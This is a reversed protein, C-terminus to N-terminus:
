LVRYKIEGITSHEELHPRYIPENKTLYKLYRGNCFEQVEISNTRCLRAVSIVDNFANALDVALIEPYDEIEIHSGGKRSGDTGSLEECLNGYLEETIFPMYPNLIKLISSFVYLLVDPDGEFGGKAVEIFIDCFDYLFFSHISQTSALFNYTAFHAHQEEIVANLRELIWKQHELLKMESVAARMDASSKGNATADPGSTKSLCCGLVFKFANYIKNCLRSNGEVRLVDLNIDKMGNTYNLLTFRLADAGCKRIGNPYDRRIADEARRLERPDLNGKSLNGIMEELSIGDIVYLPDIVNGLSKSMKRGHADRVLGHLLIADFPKCGCLEYSLMVMRAVWFFM